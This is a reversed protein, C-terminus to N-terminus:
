SGTSRSGTLWEALVAAQSHDVDKSATLLTLRGRGALDRLHGAAQRHGADRLEALYRRRFEAYRGPTHGYWKRLETSPAVDRLWEDLHADAKRIGRPWVRDVLIRKGDEASTEEYVRRCTIEGAM